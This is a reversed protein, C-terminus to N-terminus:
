FFFCPPFLFSRDELRVVVYIYSQSLVCGSVCSRHNLELCPPCIQARSWRFAHTHLLAREAHLRLGPVNCLAAPLVLRFVSPLNMEQWCCIYVEQALGQVNVKSFCICIHTLLTYTQAHMSAGRHPYKSLVPSLLHPSASTAWAVSM